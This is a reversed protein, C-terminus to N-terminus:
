PAARGPFQVFMQMVVQNVAAQPDKMVDDTLEGEAVGEWLLKKKSADAVDVNATGVKYRVTEVGGGAYLGARYGYYGVAPAPTSQIDVKEQANANFNILLDPNAEVRRYGRSDMERSVAAEFYTTLPTSYGGRNTAPEPVFAYTKYSSLNAGPDLNSHVKPGSECATILACALALMSSCVFPCQTIMKIHKAHYSALSKYRSGDRTCM